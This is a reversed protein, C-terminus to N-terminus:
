LSFSALAIIVLAGYTAFGIGTFKLISFTRVHVDYIDAKLITQNGDKNELVITNENVSVLRGKVSTRNLKAVEFIQKKESSIREFDISKYSYCSQFLISISLLFILKKM